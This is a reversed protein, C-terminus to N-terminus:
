GALRQLKAAHRKLAHRLPAPRRIEFAFPLRALERAFWGLDDASSRLLVGGTAPELLGFDLAFARRATDLDARLLVEVAHRRPMGAISANLQALADFGDPRRFRQDLAWVTGIRDLRFSRLGRRLHCWGVMYWAGARWALGYPDVERESRRQPPATYDLRVRRREQAAATLTALADDGGAAGSPHLDLQVTDAIALARKRLREPMARALKAQAGAVAPAAGALGLRQAALLGLSLAQAEDDDFMLPPLKFGPVLAYAGHRGRETAIPIGLDELAVIYRRLTRGDVGVQRALEPGSARGRSQLLELVALLRTTPRTMRATYRNM